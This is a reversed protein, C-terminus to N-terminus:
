GAVVAKKHLLSSAMTINLPLALTFLSLPFRRFLGPSTSTHQENEAVQKEAQKRSRQGYDKYSVSEGM